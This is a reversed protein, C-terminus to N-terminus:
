ATVTTPAIARRSGCSTRCARATPRRHSGKANTFRTRDAMHEHRAAADAGQQLDPVDRADPGHRVSAAVDTTAVQCVKMREGVEV